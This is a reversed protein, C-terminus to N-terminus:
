RRRTRRSKRSRKTRRRSRGGRKGGMRSNRANEREQWAAMADYYQQWVASNSPSTPDVRPEQPQPDSTDPM